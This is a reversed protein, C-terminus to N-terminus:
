EDWWQGSKATWRHEAYAEGLDPYKKELLRFGVEKPLGYDGNKLRMRITRLVNVPNKQQERHLAVIRSLPLVRSRRIETKEVKEVVKTHAHGQARVDRDLDIDLWKHYYELTTEPVDIMRLFPDFGMAPDYAHQEVVPMMSGQTLARTHAFRLMSTAVEVWAIVEDADITGRHQRFEITGLCRKYTFQRNDIDLYTQIHDEIYQCWEIVTTEYARGVIAEAEPEDTPSSRTDMQESDVESATRPSSSGTVVRPPPSRPLMMALAGVENYVNQIYTVRNRQGTEDERSYEM